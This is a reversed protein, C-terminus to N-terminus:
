REGPSSGARRRRGSRSLLRFLLGAVLATVLVGAIGALGTTGERGGVAYDALPSGVTHSEIANQAICTGDLQEGGATESVTCGHLAVSDLGDPDPSALYSLGGAIVLAALLFGLLFRSRLANM